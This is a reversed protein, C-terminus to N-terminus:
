PNESLLAEIQVTYEMRSKDGHFGRHIFRVKRHQDLVYATPMTPPKVRAVLEQGADRVVSFDVPHRALFREMDRAARDVNIAIVVVGRDRYTKQLEDYVPFSQKCPGCWSAWFDVIIVRARDLDPLDGEMNAGSLEPFSDGVDVAAAPVTLAVFAFLCLVAAALIRGRRIM